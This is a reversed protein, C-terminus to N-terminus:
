NKFKNKTYSFGYIKAVVKKSKSRASRFEARKWENRM